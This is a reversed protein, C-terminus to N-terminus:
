PSGKSGLKAVARSVIEDISLARGYHDLYGGDAGLLFLMTSHDVMYSKGDATPVKKSYVHYEDGIKAIEEPTGTLGSFDAGFFHVYPKLKDPTDREPDVTVFIPKVDVGVETSVRKAVRAIKALDLPCVDPCTTYGFYLLVPRGIFTKETVRAGNQDVLSFAGGTDTRTAASGLNALVLSLLLVVAKM